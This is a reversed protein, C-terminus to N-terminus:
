LNATPEIRIAPSMAQSRENVVEAEVLDKPRNAPKSEGRQDNGEVPTEPGSEPHSALPNTQHPPEPSSAKLARGVTLGLGLLGAMTAVPHRASFVKLDEIIEQASAGKLYESASNLSDELKAVGESLGVQNEQELKRRMEATAESLSELTEGARTSHEDVIQSGKALADGKVEDLKQSLDEGTRKLEHQLPQNETESQPAHHTESITKMGWRSRM